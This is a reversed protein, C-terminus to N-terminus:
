RGKGFWPERFLIGTEVCGRAAAFAFYAALFGCAGARGVRWEHAWPVAFTMYVAVGIVFATSVVIDNSFLSTSDDRALGPNSGEDNGFAYAALAPGAAGALLEFAAHAFCAAAAVAPKGHRAFAATAFLAGGYRCWSVLVHFSAVAARVSLTKSSEGESGIADDWYEDGLADAAAARTLAALEGAAAHMWTASVAFAVVTLAADMVAVANRHTESDRERGSTLAPWACWVAVAGLAGVALGYVMADADLGGGPFAREAVVLFAPATVPLLSVLLRSRRAPDGALDPM